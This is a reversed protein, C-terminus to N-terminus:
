ELDGRPSDQGPLVELVARTSREATCPLSSQVQLAERLRQNKVLLESVLQELTQIKCLLQRLEREEANTSDPSSLLTDQMPNDGHPNFPISSRREASSKRFFTSRSATRDSLHTSRM